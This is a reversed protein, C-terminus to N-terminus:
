VMAELTERQLITVKRGAIALAGTRKLHNLTRTVTERSSGLMSALDEHTLPMDIVPQEQLSYDGAEMMELLLNAMRSPISTSLALRRADSFASRYENALSEAAYLSGETNNQIFHLFAKQEYCRVLVDEIAQATVEYPMQSIAASLGLLDGAGAIRVLLTKGDRSTTALKMRGAYIVSVTSSPQGEAFLVDGARLRAYAGATDEGYRCRASARQSEPVKATCAPCEGAAKPVIHLGGFVSVFPELEPAIASRTSNSPHSKSAPHHVESKRVGDSRFMRQRRPELM